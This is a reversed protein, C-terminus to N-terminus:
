VKQLGKRKNQKIDLNKKTGKLSDRAFCCYLRSDGEIDVQGLEKEAESGGAIGLLEKFYGAM